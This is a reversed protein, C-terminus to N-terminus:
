GQAEFGTHKRHLLLRYETNCYQEVVPVRDRAALPVYIFTADYVDWDHYPTIISYKVPIDYQAHCCLGRATYLADLVYYVAFVYMVHM